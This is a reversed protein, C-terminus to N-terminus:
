FSCRPSTLRSDEELKKNGESLELRRRADLPFMKRSRRGCRTVNEKRERGVFVFVFLNSGTMDGGEAESAAAAAAAALPLFGLRGPSSTALCIALVLFFSLLVSTLKTSSPSQSPLMGVLSRKKQGPGEVVGARV